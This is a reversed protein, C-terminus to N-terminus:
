TTRKRKRRVFRVARAEPRVFCIQVGVSRGGFHKVALQEEWDNTLSKYFAAYEDKTIEEPKEDLDAKAQEHDGM